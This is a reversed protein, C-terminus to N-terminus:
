RLGCATFARARVECARARAKEAGAALIRDVEAPDALLEKRRERAPAFYAEMAEYIAGKLHGYGPAGEGGARVKEKWENVKDAEMFLSMTDFLFLEDPNKPEEPPRSDTVIKNIIKKLKKGEEFIWITNGYSKSMKQGDLGVVKQAQKTSALLCEPRVFVEGYHNNFYGAMDQTMELHQVQDKGVPVHTSDYALIDAAMLIPYTFLGVSPKIGQATKDKYSHARELLGMGCQTALLWAIEHVEPVDSQRWLVAKEPDLGLALYAVATERTYTRLEEPDRVSTLAHFDAIFYFHEGAEEQLAIHQRIAGFYNGIHQLGSPQIGSLYTPM